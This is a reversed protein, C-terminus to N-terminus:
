HAPLAVLPRCTSVHVVRVSTVGDVGDGDGDGDEVGVLLTFLGDFFHRTVRKFSTSILRVYSRLFIIPKM